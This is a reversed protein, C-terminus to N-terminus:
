LACFSNIGKSSRPMVKLDMSLKSLPKYNLNIRTQLQRSPLKENRTLQCIHCGKIYSRLYHILNPIFFKYNITLYTKIIGQHGAFLSSHYLTIINDVCMELIALVATEKEPMTSIEFLLSDLLIYKEALAEVKQIGAKSSPLKNHTLYLYIDKFYSSNLYGEQIEKITVSLYVGKLVKCQIIQLIKNIDAQKLLFNQILNSTNVLSELDKPKQFYTKNPRQYLESIIGEQHPSNEEFNIDIKSKTATNTKLSEPQLNDPPRPPPRFFPEPYFPQERNKDQVQRRTTTDAKNTILQQPVPFDMSDKADKQITPIKSSKNTSVLTDAVPKLHKIM